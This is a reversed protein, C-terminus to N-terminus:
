FLISNRGDSNKLFSTSVEENIILADYSNESISDTNKINEQLRNEIKVNEILQLSQYEHYNIANDFINQESRFQEKLM